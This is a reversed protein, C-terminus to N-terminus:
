IDIDPLVIGTRSEETVSEAPEDAATPAETVTESVDPSTEAPAATETVEQTRAAPDKTDTATLPETDPADKGSEATVSGDPETRESNDTTIAAESASGAESGVPDRAGHDDRCAIVSLLLLLCLLSASLRTIRM